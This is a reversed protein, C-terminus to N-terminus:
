WWIFCSVGLGGGGSREKFDLGWKGSGVAMEVFM